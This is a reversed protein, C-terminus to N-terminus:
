MELSGGSSKHLTSRRTSSWPRALIPSWDCNKYSTAIGRRHPSIVKISRLPEICAPGAPSCSSVGIM